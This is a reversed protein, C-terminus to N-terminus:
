CLYTGSRDYDVRVGTDYDPYYNISKLYKKEPHYEHYKLKFIGYKIM